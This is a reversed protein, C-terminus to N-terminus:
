PSSNVTRIPKPNLDALSMSEDSQVLWTLEPRMYRGQSDALSDGIYIFNLIGFGGPEM